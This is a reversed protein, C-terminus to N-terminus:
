RGSVSGDVGPPCVILNFLIEVLMKKWMGSSRLTEREHKLKLKKALALQYRYHMIIFFVVILSLVIMFGRLVSNINTSQHRKKTELGNEKVIKIFQEYQLILCPV